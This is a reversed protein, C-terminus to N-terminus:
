WTMCRNKVLVAAIEPSNTVVTLALETPLAEAMALNTTGTDIFITGGAEGAPCM